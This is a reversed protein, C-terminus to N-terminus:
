ARISLWSGGGAYSIQPLLEDGGIENLRSYSLEPTVRNVEERAVNQRNEQGHSGHQAAQGGGGNMGDTLGRFETAAATSHVVLTNVALRENHLYETLSPLERHLMDQGSSSATSLSANVVGGSTMEARVKLWGHSGNIVGVELATPTAMLTHHAPGAIDHIGANVQIGPDGQTAATLSPSELVTPKLVIHPMTGTGSTPGVSATLTEAVSHAFTEVTSDTQAKKNEMMPLTAPGPIETVDAGAKKSAGDAILASIPHKIDAGDAEGANVITKKLLISGGGQRVTPSAASSLDSSEPRANKEQEDWPSHPVSIVVALQAGAAPIVEVAAEPKETKETKAAKAKAAKTFHVTEKDKATKEAPTASRGETAAIKKQNLVPSKGNNSVVSMEDSTVDTQPVTKEDPGDVGISEITEPLSKQLIGETNQTVVQDSANIPTAASGNEHSGTDSPMATVSGAMTARMSLADAQSGTTSALHIVVDIGSQIKCHVRGCNTTTTKAGTMASPLDVDKASAVLAAGSSANLVERTVIGEEETGTLAAGEEFSEAFSAGASDARVSTTPGMSGPEAGPSMLAATMTLM